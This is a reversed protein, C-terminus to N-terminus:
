SGKTHNLDINMFHVPSIQNEIKFIYIYTFIKYLVCFFLISRIKKKQSFSISGRYKTYQTNKKFFNIESFHHCNKALFNVNKCEFVHKGLYKEFFYNVFYSLIAVFIEKLFFFDAGLSWCRKVMRSFIKINKQM